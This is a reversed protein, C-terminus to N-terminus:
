SEIKAIIRHATMKPDGTAIRIVKTKASEGRILTVASRAVGAFEVISDIIQRNARGKEAPAEVAIVPGRPDIRVLGRRNSGPRAVIEITLFDPGLRIWPPLDGPAERRTTV